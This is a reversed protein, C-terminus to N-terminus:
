RGLGRVRYTDYYNRALQEARQPLYGQKDITSIYVIQDCWDLLFLQGPKPQFFADYAIGGPDRLLVLYRDSSKVQECRAENPRSASTKGPLGIQLVLVPLDVFRLDSALDRLRPDPQLCGDESVPTFCVITVGLRIRSFWTEKGSDLKMPMDRVHSGIHIVQDPEQVSGSVSEGEGCGVVMFLLAAGATTIFRTVM